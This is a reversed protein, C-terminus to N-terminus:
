QNDGVSVSQPDGTRVSACWCVRQGSAEAMHEVIDTSTSEASVVFSAPIDHCVYSEKVPRRGHQCSIDIREGRSNLASDNSWCTNVDRMGKEELTRRCADSAASKLADPIFEFIRTAVIGDIELGPNVVMCDVFNGEGQRGEGDVGWEQFIPACTEQIQQRRAEFWANLEDNNPKVTDKGTACGGLCTAATLVAVTNLTKKM